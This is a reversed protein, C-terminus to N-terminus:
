IKELFRRTMKAHERLGKVIIRYAEEIEERRREM